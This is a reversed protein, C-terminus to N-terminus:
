KAYELVLYIFRSDELSTYCRVINPHMLRKQIQIERKLTEKIRASTLSKKEIKKVAVRIGSPVHTALNVIGYSGKGISKV